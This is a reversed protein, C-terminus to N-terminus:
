GEDQTRRKPLTDEFRAHQDGVTEPKPVRGQLVQLRLAINNGEGIQNAVWGVCPFDRGPKSEHCAMMRLVGGMVASLDGEEAITRKLAEHKDVCYGNPIEHPNTSKKWPCKACQKRRGSAAM